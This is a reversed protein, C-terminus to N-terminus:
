LAMLFVAARPGLELGFFAADDPIGVMTAPESSIM